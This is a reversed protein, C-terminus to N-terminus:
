LFHYTFLLVSGERQRSGTTLNHIRIPTYARHDYMKDLNGLISVGLLARQSPKSLAQDAVPIAQITSALPSANFGTRARYAATASVPRPTNQEAPHYELSGSTEKALAAEQAEEDDIKAWKVARQRRANATELVRSVLMPSKILKRMQAKVGAARHWFLDPLSLDRPIYSPIAINFYGIALHFPSLRENSVARMNPRLNIASYIMSVDTLTAM